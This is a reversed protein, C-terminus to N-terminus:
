LKVDEIEGRVYAVIDGQKAMGGNELVIRDIVGEVTVELNNTITGIVLKALPEGKAIPDGPEKFWQVIEGDESMYVPHMIFAKAEYGM